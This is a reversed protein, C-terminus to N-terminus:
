SFIKTTRMFFILFLIGALFLSISFSLVIGYLGMGLPFALIYSSPIGVLIYSVLAIWMMPRVNGSGRLANAFTIQTADGLQYLVLPFILTVAMALVAPDSTFLHMIHRAGLGFFLSSILACTLVVAYGAEAKHRMRLAAPPSDPSDNGAENSVLVAIATGMAYYICFGLTGIVIIMQYAALEIEGLWGCFIACGSFAATEFGMQLGVPWSMRTVNRRLEGLTEVKTSVAATSKITFGNRYETYKPSRLFLIIIATMCFTRAALTSLGAGTLGLEPFGGYGYILLYNGLINLLNGALMIWMPMATNRIGYSWQAFANFVCIPLLGVIHIVMYPRITPLLNEPQGLQPLLIYIVSMLAILLIGLLLNVLAGARLLRGIRREDGNTYLAGVMPTLGFSFGMAAMLPLNFLNNVFSASALADTSYQGVMINDAFGVVIVGLQSILVPFGLRLIKLYDSRFQRFTLAQKQNEM